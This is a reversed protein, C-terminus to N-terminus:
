IEPFSDYIMSERDEVDFFVMHEVEPAEAFVLFRHLNRREHRRRTELQWFVEKLLAYNGHRMKVCWIYRNLRRKRTEIRHKLWWWEWWMMDMLLSPHKLAASFLGM